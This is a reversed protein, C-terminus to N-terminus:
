GQCHWAKALGSAFRVGTKRTAYIFGDGDLFRLLNETHKEGIRSQLLVQAAKYDIPHDPAGNLEDFLARAAHCEDASYRDFRAEFQSRYTEEIGREIAGCHCDRIETASVSKKYRLTDFGFQIVGPYRAPLLGLLADASETTWGAMPNYAAMANIMARAEDHSMEEIHISSCDNIHEDRIGHERGLWTMAFSGSITMSIGVEDSRWHRLLALFRNLRAVVESKEKDSAAEVANMILFPLEDFMLIPRDAPRMDVFVKGIQEFLSEAYADVDNAGAADLKNTLLQVLQAKASKPISTTTEFWNKLRGAFGEDKAIEGVIQKLVGAVSAQKQLDIWLVHRGHNKILRERAEAILSSKGIRRLGFIRASGGDNLRQVLENPNPQAGSWFRVGTVHTGWHPRFTTSGSARSNDDM